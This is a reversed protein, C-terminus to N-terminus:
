NLVKEIGYGDLRNRYYFLMKINKIIIKNKKFELPRIAHYLGLNKCGTKIQDDVSISLEDSIKIKKNESLKKIFDLVLKYNKKFYNIDIILEDEPLGIINEIRMKKFKNRIIEFATFSLILSSFVVTGAMLEDIIKESLNNLIEKKNNKELSLNNNNIPNGKNDVRNGYIDLPNGISVAMRNSHTFYKILFMLIKFTNSYGLDKLLSKDLKNKSLHQNILAPGELVFQYNFTVPVIFIKKKKKNLEKQAELTSGLLGLKLNKEISGSRSRTGGPYFLNHCGNIIARETYTKLTELYLIHKKRRDVKYAGLSNFFYAFIKLNYLVLGAGYMFAPLGLHSIIWGILASDLHSFHTPVMVITGKKSLQRLRKQKGVIQITSNLNLNGFPNRLRATNLLRALFSSILRRAFSHHSRKFNGTIEKTYRDIVIPLIEEKIKKNNRDNEFEILKEKLSYWFKKDDIPDANWSINSIRLKEKYVTNILEDYLNEPKIKELIKKQSKQSVENMFGNRDKFLQVIPWFKSRNIIKEYKKKKNKKIEKM